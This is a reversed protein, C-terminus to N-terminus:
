LALWTGTPLTQVEFSTKYAKTTEPLATADITSSWFIVCGMLATLLTVLMRRKLTWNHPDMEDDEGEFTVVILKNRKVSEIDSENDTSVGPRPREVGTVMIDPTNGLTEASNITHPDTSLEPDYEAGEIDGERGLHSAATHRPQLSPGSIFTRHGHERRREAAPDDSRERPHTYIEGERYGYQGEHTWVNEPKEHKTVFQQELKRRIARHQLFSQMTSSEPDNTEPDFGYNNYQIDLATSSSRDGRISSPPLFSM